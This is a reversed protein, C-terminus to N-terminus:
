RTAILRGLVFENYYIVVMLLFAFFANLYGFLLLDPALFFEILNMSAIVIIQFLACFRSQFRSIIWFFLLCELGGILQTLERAYSAGLIRGVIQQHRPVGNLLKCYLGNILWVLSISFTLLSRLYRQQSIPLVM